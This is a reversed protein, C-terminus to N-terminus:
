HFYSVLYYAIVYGPAVGIVADHQASNLIRHNFVIDDGAIRTAKKDIVRFVNRQATIQHHVVLDAYM